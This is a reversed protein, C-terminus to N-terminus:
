FIEQKLVGNEETFRVEGICTRRNGGPKEPNTQVHFATMLRGDKATFFANHGAGFLDARCSLVPNSAPDKTWPGAPHPATAICIAYHNTAYCNASYNMVYRDGLRIVTPGENWLHNMSLSKKEWDYEPTTILTHEGVTRTLTEDLQVCYLQSVKVGDIINQSCDRSYYFWNGEESILVSGDITAYGLDFFPKGWVDTFPGMPSDSVAVGLHLTKTDATEASYHMIFRGGHYVVEPAWFKCAGWCNEETNFCQQGESWHVLDDSYWVNFGKARSTAYCYYTGEYLLIQPDGIKTIDTIIM